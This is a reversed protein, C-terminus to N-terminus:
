ARRQYHWTALGFLVGGLFWWPDWLLLHWYASTRGLGAPIDIAGAVMLAHQVWSAAGEYLGLLATAGWGAALLLWRPLKRGWAQVLALALVGAIVKLAGTAWMIAVWTPDRAQVPQVMSPPFTEAGATGGAAYYFSQLSFIFAWTAAAYGAWAPSRSHTTPATGGSHM